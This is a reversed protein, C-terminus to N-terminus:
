RIHEILFDFFPTKSFKGTLFETQDKKEEPDDEDFIPQIPESENMESEQKAISVQNATNDLIIYNLQIFPLVGFYPKIRLFCLHSVKQHLM